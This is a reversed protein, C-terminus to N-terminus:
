QWQVMEMFRQMFAQATRQEVGSIAFESIMAQHDRDLTTALFLTDYLGPYHKYARSCLRVRSNSGSSNRVTSHQCQFQNTDFESAENASHIYDSNNGLMTYFRMTGLNRDNFWRFRMKLGQTRFNYGLYIDGHLRCQTTSLDYHPKLEETNSDGWCRIFPLDIHPIRMKGMTKSQWPAAMIEQFLRKQQQQLQTTIQEAITSQKLEKTNILKHLKEVPVLLGISNRGSAVNIGIVDGAQNVVPGGSMGSNVAGTFHVRKTYSGKKFGNYTGPVVIMGMDRPNGLSYIKEGQKSPTTSLKFFQAAPESDLQLLALDNVVDVRLLRLQGKQGNQNEYVLHYKNPHQALDSVVHYNTAVMGSASIQFGSGISIKEQSSNEITRVQFLAPSLTSFLQEANGSSSAFAQAYPTAFALLCLTIFYRIFMSCTIWVIFPRSKKVRQAAINQLMPHCFAMGTLMSRQQHMTNVM